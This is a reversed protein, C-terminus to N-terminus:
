EVWRLLGNFSVRWRKMPELMEIKLGGASLTGPTVNSVLTDPHKPHHFDGVGPIHLYLWLEAYRGQRRALRAVFYVGERNFGGFYVSDIAQLNLSAWSSFVCFSNGVTFLSILINGLYVSVIEKIERTLWLFYNWGLLECSSPEVLPSMGGAKRPRDCVGWVWFERGTSNERKEKKKPTIQVPVPFYNTQHSVMSRCCLVSFSVMLCLLWKHVM